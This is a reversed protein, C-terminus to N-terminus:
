RVELYTTVFEGLDGEVRSLLVPEVASRLGELVSTCPPPRLELASRVVQLSRDDSTIASHDNLGDVVVVVETAGPVRIRNAPVVIDDTGGITTFDIHEPLRGAWLKRMLRSNESLQLVSKADSPPGPRIDDTVDLVGRIAENERLTAGTTALPAGQHPSALTVVTGIPPFAPDAADYEWRLFADVVVGGQSHAILDVERGPERAHLERLQQALRAAATRLSDHTDSRDYAGGDDAYSYWHVEDRHYGLADTDLGFSRRDRGSSSSDIGAVAMLLHGSGGSGDAPAADGACETTSWDLFREGIEVLDSLARGPPSALLQARVLAGANALQDVLENLPGRLGAALARGRRGAAGLVGLGADLADRTRGSTWKAGDCIADVAGGVLPVGSACGGDGSGAPAVLPTWGEQLATREGASRHAWSEAPAGDIPVLRVLDRLDRAQFLLMPDVYRDGVRVGFHLVGPEHGSDADSGGAHGVVTAATVAEGEAVTVDALFSYSTRVGGRHQVVVHLGGGVDGAFSVTGAGAARVDAGVPAAFDVGRHGAAYTSPPEAFARVVRGALPRQWRADDAAAIPQALMAVIAGTLAVLAAWARIVNRVHSTSVPAVPTRIARSRAAGARRSRLSGV